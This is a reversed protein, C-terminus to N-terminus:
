PAALLVREGSVLDAYDSRGATWESYGSPYRACGGDGPPIAGLFRRHLLAVPRCNRLHNLQSHTAPSNNIRGHNRLIGRGAVMRRHAMRGNKENMPVRARKSPGRRTGM